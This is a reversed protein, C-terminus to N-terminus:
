EAATPKPEPWVVDDETGIEGDTGGSIFKLSRGDSEYAVANGWPDKLLEPECYPGRWYPRHGPNDVLAQLGEETTPFHHMALKYVTLTSRLQGFAMQASRVRANEAASMVNAVIIGMLGGILSMVIIIEILTMGAAGFAGPDASVPLRALAGLNRRLHKVRNGIHHKFM